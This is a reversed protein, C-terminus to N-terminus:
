QRGGFLLTQGKEQELFRQSKELYGPDIDQMIRDFVMYNLGARFFHANIFPSNDLVFRFARGRTDRGRSTDFAINIARNLEGVFPGGSTELFGQGYRNYEAFLLDGFIGLGGSQLLMDQTFKVDREVDGTFPKRITRGKALDKLALSVYGWVLGNFTLWGAGRYDFKGGPGSHLLMKLHKTVITTSFSKYQTFLQAAAGIWTGPNTGFRLLARERAGPTPIAINVENYFFSRFDVELGRRTEHRLEAANLPNKPIKTGKSRLYANIQKDSVRKLSDPVLFDRGDVARTDLNKIVAWEENGIGYVGMRKRLGADLTGFVKTRNRALESGLYFGTGTKSNNTWWQFKTLDFFKNRMRGIWGSISDAGGNFRSMAASSTSAIDLDILDLVGERVKKKTGGLLQTLADGLFDLSSGGWRMAMASGFALDSPQSLLVRGLKAMDILARVQRGRLAINVDEPINSLGTIERWQNNLSSNNNKLELRSKRAKNLEKNLAKKQDPKAKAIDRELKLVRARNKKTLDAKLFAFTEEWDAGMERLLTKTRGYRQLKYIMAEHMTHTTGLGMYKKRMFIESDADKWHFARHRGLRDANSAKGQNFAQLTGPLDWDHENMVINERGKTTFDTRWKRIEDPTMVSLDVDWINEVKAWDVKELADNIFEDPSFRAMDEMAWINPMTFSELKKIDAGFKNLEQRIIENHVAVAKHAQNAHINKTTGGHALRIIDEDLTGDAFIKDTGDVEKMMRDFSNEVRSSEVGSMTDLNRQTGFEGREINVIFSSLAEAEDLGQKIRVDMEAVKNIRAKGNSLRRRAVQLKHLGNKEIKEKLDRRLRAPLSENIAKLQGELTAITKDTERTLERIRDESVIGAKRAELLINLCKKPTAM